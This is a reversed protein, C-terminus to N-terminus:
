KIEYTCNRKYAMLEDSVIMTKVCDADVSLKDFSERTCIGNLPKKGLAVLKNGKYYAVYAAANTEKDFHCGVTYSSEDVDDAICRASVSINDVYIEGGTANSSSFNLGMYVMDEISILGERVILGNARICFYNNAPDLSVVVRCWTGPEYTFGGSGLKGSRNIVHVSGSTGDFSAYSRDTSRTEFSIAAGHQNMLFDFKYDVVGCYTTPITKRIYPLKSTKAESFSVCLVKNGDAFDRVSFDVTEVQPIITEIKSQSKILADDSTLECNEFTIEDIVSRKISKFFHVKILNSDRTENEGEIRLFINCDGMIDIANAPVTLTQMGNNRSGFDILKGSESWLSCNKADFPIDACMDYDYSTDIRGLEGTSFFRVEEVLEGDPIQWTSVPAYVASENLSVYDFQPTLKVTIYVEGSGTGSLLLKNIHDRSYEGPRVVSGPLAVAGTSSFELNANTDLTVRLKKYGFSLTAGKKDEDIEIEAETHMSWYLTSNDNILNFEDQVVLSKRNDGFYYGRQYDTVDLSNADTLDLVMCAGRDKSEFASVKASCDLKQQYYEGEIDGKEPNIVLCNQGEPRKVYLTYANLGWYGGEINYDDKGLEMAWREGLADFIFNGLDLNDHNTYNQGGKVGVYASQSDNWKERMVGAGASRLWVDKPLETAEETPPDYWLIGYPNGSATALSYINKWEAMSASDNLMKSVLFGAPASSFSSSSDAFNFTGSSESTLHIFGNLCESVGEPRMFGWTSGTSFYLSGLFAGAFYRITYSWYGPGESWSGDPYFLMAPYEISYMANSLLFEQTGVPMGWKEGAFSILASTMGGPCVAGWNGNAVRWESGIKFTTEYAHVSNALSYETTKEIIYQKQEDTLVDYFTDYGVAMAYCLESNDLYHRQANWDQWSCANLMEEIGKRAFKEDKTLLYASSLTVCRSLVTSAADLLRVGILEYEVCEDDLLNTANHIVDREWNQMTLDTEIYGLTKAIAEENTLIRPRSTKAISLIEGADARDFYLYRYVRDASEKIEFPSESNSLACDTQGAVVFGREDEYSYIGLTNAAAATDIYTKGNINKIYPSMSVGGIKGSSYLYGLANAFFLPPVYVKEKERVPTIGYDSYLRKAGNAYFYIDGTFVCNSGLLSKVSYEDDKQGCFVTYYRPVLGTEGNNDNTTYIKFNDFYIEAGSATTEAFGFCIKSATAIGGTFSHTCLTASSDSIIIEKDKDNKILRATYWVNTKLDAIKKAGSYLSAGKITLRTTEDTNDTPLIIGSDSTSILKFDYEYTFESRDPINSKLVQTVLGSATGSQFLRFAKGTEGEIETWNATVGGGLNSYDFFDSMYNDGDVNLFIYNEESPAGFVYESQAASIPLVPLMSILLVLSLVKKIM